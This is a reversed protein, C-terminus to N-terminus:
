PTHKTHHSKALHKMTYINDNIPIDVYDQWLTNKYVCEVKWKHCLRLERMWTNPNMWWKYTPTNTLRVFYRTYSDRNPIQRLEEIKYVNVDRFAAQPLSVGETTTTYYKTTM